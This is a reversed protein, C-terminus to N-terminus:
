FKNDLIDQRKIWSIIFNYILDEVNNLQHHSTHWTHEVAPNIRCRIDINEKTNIIRGTSVELNLYKLREIISFRPRIGSALSYIHIRHHITYILM